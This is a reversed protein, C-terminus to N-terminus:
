REAGQARAVWLYKAARAAAPCVSLASSVASVVEGVEAEGPEEQLMRRQSPLAQSLCTLFLSFVHKGGEAKVAAEAGGVGLLLPGLAGM